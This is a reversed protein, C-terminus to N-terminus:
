SGSSPPVSATACTRSGYARRKRRNTWATCPRDMEWSSSSDRAALRLHSCGPGGKAAPSEGAQTEGLNRRCRAAVVGWAWAVIKGGCISGRLTEPPQATITEEGRLAQNVFTIDTAVVVAASGVRRSKM